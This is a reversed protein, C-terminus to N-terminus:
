NKKQRQLSSRTVVKEGNKFQVTQVLTPKDPNSWDNVETETFDGKPGTGKKQREVIVGFRTMKEDYTTGEDTVSHGLVEKTGEKWYVIGAYTTTPKDDGKKTLTYIWRTMRGPIVWHTTCRTTYSVGKETSIGDGEFAGTFTGIWRGQMKKFDDQSFEEAATPQPTCVSLLCLTASLTTMRTFMAPM